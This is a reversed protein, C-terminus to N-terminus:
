YRNGRVSQLTCGAMAIRPPVGDSVGYFHQFHIFCLIVSAQCRGSHDVGDANNPGAYVTEFRIDSM